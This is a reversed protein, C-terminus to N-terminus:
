IIILPLLVSDITSVSVYKIYIHIVNCSVVLCRLQVILFFGNFPILIFM